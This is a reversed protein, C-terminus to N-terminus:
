YQYEMTYSYPQSINTKVFVTVKAPYGNPLYEYQYTFSSLVAGNPSVYTESLMNNPSLSRVSTESGWDLGLEFFPNPHSDYTYIAEGSKASFNEKIWSREINNKADRVLILDSSTNSQEDSYFAMKMVFGKTNFSHHVYSKSTSRLDERTLIQLSDNTPVKYNVSFLPSFFNQRTGKDPDYETYKSEFGTVFDGTRTFTGTQYIIPKDEMTYLNEGKLFKGDYVFEAVLFGNKLVKSLKMEVPNVGFPAQRSGFSVFDPIDVPKPNDNRGCSVATFFILLCLLKKM